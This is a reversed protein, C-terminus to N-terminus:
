GPTRVPGPVRSPIAPPWAIHLVRLLVQGLLLAAHRGLAHLRLAAGQAGHEDVALGDHQGHFGQGGLVKVQVLVPLDEVGHLGDVGGAPGHVEDGEHVLEGAPPGQLADAPGGIQHLQGLVHGGGGVDLAVDGEHPFLGDQAPEDGGARVDGLGAELGGLGNGGDQVARFLGDVVDGHAPAAVAQLVDVLGQDLGIGLDLLEVEVLAADVADGGAKHLQVPERRAKVAALEDEHRGPRGHALGGEHEVDGLVRGHHAFLGDGEEGQLHGVDLQGVAGEAGLGM